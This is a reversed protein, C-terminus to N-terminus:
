EGRQDALFGEVADRTRLRVFELHAYAPDRRRGGFRVRNSRHTRMAWLIISDRTVLSSPRERNGSWLEERTRLRRGTRRSLRTIVIRFPLDLWVITDAAPWVVDEVKELYNGDVVWGRTAATLADRVRARFVDDEAEVWEPEWHLADLEVHPVGRTEALAAAVTSKGTGTTGVVVFRSGVEGAHSVSGCCDHSVAV